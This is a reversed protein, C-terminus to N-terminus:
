KRRSMARRLAPTPDAPHDVAAAITKAQEASVLVRQLPWEMMSLVPSTYAYVIKDTAPDIFVVRRGQKTEAVAKMYFAIADQVIQTKPLEMEEALSDLQESQIAPLTADLRAM